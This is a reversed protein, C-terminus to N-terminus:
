PAETRALPTGTATTVAPPVSAVAQHGSAVQGTEADPRRGAVLLVPPRELEQERM